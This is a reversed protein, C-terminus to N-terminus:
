TELAELVASYVASVDSTLGSKFSREAEAILDYRRKLSVAKEGGAAKQAMYVAGDKVGLKLALSDDGRNLVAYMLKRYHNELMGLVAGPSFGDSLLTRLIRLARGGEKKSIADSLEFIKYESSASVNNKVDAETIADTILCLKDTENEIAALSSLTYEILLEAAPRTVTAGGAAARKAIYPVLVDRSLKGCEVVTMNRMCGSFNPTLKESTFILVTFPEPSGLYKKMPELSGKFDRVVVARKQSYLPYSRCCAEIEHVDAGDEFFTVNLEPMGDVLSLLMDRAKEVVRGDEGVLLYIGGAEGSKIHKKLDVFKM